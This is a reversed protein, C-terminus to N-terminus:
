RSGRLRYACQKTYQTTKAIEAADYDYKVSELHNNLVLAKMRNSMNPRILLGVISEATKLTKPRMEKIVQPYADIKPVIEIVAHDAHKKLIVDL